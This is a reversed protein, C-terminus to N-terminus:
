ARVFVYYDTDLGGFHYDGSKWEMILYETGDFQKIEMACASFDNKRILFGKTWVQKEDDEWIIREHNKSDHRTDQFMTRVHGGELFDVEKFFLPRNEKKAPSWSNKNAKGAPIYDYAKWSGIVRADNVFPLNIDDKRSLEELTYHRCDAKKLAVQTIEGTEEYDFSKLDVILYLGDGKRELRYDNAFANGGGLIILKGKTWKYGWYQRGEPLLYIEKKEGGLYTKQEKGDFFGLVEWKGIVDEDNVFPFDVNEMFVKVKQQMIKGGKIGTKGQTERFSRVHNNGFRMDTPDAIVGFSYGYSNDREIQDRMEELNGLTRVLETKKQDFLERIKDKDECELVFKIESLTFGANKLRQIYFFIEAQARDYYRYETFIDVYVPSLLGLKDYHRLVSIRTKCIKAFEGIKM